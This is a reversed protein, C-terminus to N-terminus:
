VKAQFAPQLLENEFVPVRPLVIEFATNDVGSSVLNVEGGHEQAVCRCLTLGLGTGRQKGQSVFPDFLTGQVASSVGTGNDVIRAVVSSPQQLISVHVLVAKAVDRPSQCANLLLNYLAREVQGTDVNVVTEGDEVDLGIEARAADPHLRVQTIARRALVELCEPQRRVMSGTRSFTLLSELMETTGLVATRIDQLFEVREEDTTDRQSLFEANAYISALYHRLDHSVSSAMRGITALRESELRARNSREIRDHMETFTEALERVERTGKVDTHIPFTNAGYAQVRRTLAELPETFRRVVLMMLASGLLMAAAGLVLLLKSIDRVDQEPAHLSKFFVLELPLTPTTSLDRGVGLYRQGGVIVPRPEAAAPVFQQLDKSSIPLSTALVRGRSLFAANADVQGSLRSLYEADIRYGNVVYGLLTGTKADGFYLPAVAFVFLDNGSLLYTRGPQAMAVSLNQRFQRGAPVNTVYAARVEYDRAVLAFLDNGSTKWFELSGDQITRDDNTTMLAKLSPLDALLNDERQLAHLREAETNKFVTVSRRLEESFDSVVQKRMEHWVALLSTGTLVAVILLLLSLLLTYTSLARLRTGPKSFPPM